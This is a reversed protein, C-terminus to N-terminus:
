APIILTNEWNMELTGVTVSREGMMTVTASRAQCKKGRNGCHGAIQGGPEALRSTCCGCFGLAHFDTEHIEQPKEEMM